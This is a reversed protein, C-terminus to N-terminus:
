GGLKRRIFVFVAAIALGGSVPWAIFLWALALARALAEIFASDTGSSLGALLFTIAGIGIILTAAAGLLWAELRGGLRRLTLPRKERTETNM